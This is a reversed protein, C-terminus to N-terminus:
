ALEVDGADARRVNEFDEATIDHPTNNAERMPAVLGIHREEYEPQKLDSNRITQIDGDSPETEATGRM